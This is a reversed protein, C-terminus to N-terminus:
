PAARRAGRTVRAEYAATLSLFNAVCFGTVLLFLFCRLAAGVPLLLALAAAIFPALYLDPWIWLELRMRREPANADATVSGGLVMLEPYRKPFWRGARMFEVRDAGVRDVSNCHRGLERAVSGLVADAGGALPPAFVIDRTVRLPQLLGKTRVPLISRM